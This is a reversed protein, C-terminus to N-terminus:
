SSSSALSLQTPILIFCALCRALSRALFVLSFSRSLLLLPPPLPLVAEWVPFPDLKPFFLIVIDVLILGGTVGARITDVDVYHLVVPSRACLNCAQDSVHLLPFALFFVHPSLSSLQTSIFNPLDPESFFHSSYSSARTLCACMPISPPSTFPSRLWSLLGGPSSTSFDPGSM